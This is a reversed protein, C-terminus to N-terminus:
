DIGRFLCIAFIMAFLEIALVGIGVAGVMYVYMQFSKLMTLYCGEKNYFDPDQSFCRTKNIFHGEQGNMQRKCCAEPMPQMQYLEHFVSDKGFDDVGSVGCCKLSIMITNWTKSFVDTNNDGRYQKKLDNKFFDENLRTKFVFATVAGALEVIFILLVFVFFTMLLGRSERIAGCCGLFGLLFLVVGAALMIYTGTFLLPNSAVIERFGRPDAAVWIGVALLAAGGLFILFNFFFMLYKVCSLCNSEM